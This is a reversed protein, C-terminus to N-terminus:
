WDTSENDKVQFSLDNRAMEMTVQLVESVLYGKGM